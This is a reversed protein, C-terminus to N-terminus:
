KIVYKRMMSIIISKDLFLGPCTLDDNDSLDRHFHINNENIQFLRSFPNLLRFALIEYLRKEPVKFDYNGMLGIHLSSKNYQENIDDFDCLFTFPRCTFVSYEDEVKEIIYHYNIDGQKLEFTGDYIGKMQYKNNDIRSTEKKYLESTHHLIIHKIKERRIKLLSPKIKVDM